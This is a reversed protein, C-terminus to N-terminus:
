GRSKKSRRAAAKLAANPGDADLMKLFTKSDRASLTIMTARQITESAAKVLVSVAFDSVTRGEVSAAEEILAKHQPSVRFDLRATQPQASQSIM